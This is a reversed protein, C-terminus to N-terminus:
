YNWLVNLAWSPTTWKVVSQLWVEIDWYHWRVTILSNSSPILKWDAYVCFEVDENWSNKISLYKNTSSPENWIFGQLTYWTSVRIDSMNWDRDFSFMGFTLISMNPNLEKLKLNKIWEFQIFGNLSDSFLSIIIGDGSWLIIKNGNSCENSNKIDNTLYEFSGSLDVTFYPEFWSLDGTLTGGFESFEKLLNWSVIADWSWIQMNFGDGHNYVETLWLETWAKALYYARFYNFTQNWYTMLHQIQNIALLSIVSSALLILIVLISINWNLKKNKIKKSFFKINLM